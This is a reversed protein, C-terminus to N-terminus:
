AKSKKKDELLMTLMAKLEGVEKKLDDTEKDRQATAEGVRYGVPTIGFDRKLDLGRSDLLAQLAASPPRVPLKGLEDEKAARVYADILGQEFQSRLSSSLAAASEVDFKIGGDTRVEPVAVLGFRKGEKILIEASKQASVVYPAYAQTGNCDTGTISPAEWPSNNPIKHTRGESDLLSVTQGSNQYLYM